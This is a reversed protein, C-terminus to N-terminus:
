RRERHDPRARAGRRQLHAGPEHRGAGQVLRHGPPIEAKFWLEAEALEDLAESRLVPTRQLLGALTSRAALVDGVEPLAPLKYM